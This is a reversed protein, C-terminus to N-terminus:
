PKVYKSLSPAMAHSSTAKLCVLLLHKLTEPWTIHESFFKVNCNGKIKHKAVLIQHRQPKGYKCLSPLWPMLSSPKSVSSSCRTWRLLIPAASSFHFLLSASGSETSGLPPILRFKFYLNTNDCNKPFRVLDM